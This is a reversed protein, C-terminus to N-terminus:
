INYNARTRSEPELRDARRARVQSSERRAVWIRRAEAVSSVDELHLMKLDAVKVEAIKLSPSFVVHVPLCAHGIPHLFWYREVDPEQRLARSFGGVPVSREPTLLAQLIWGSGSRAYAALRGCACRVERDVGGRSGGPSTLRRGCACADEPPVTWIWM